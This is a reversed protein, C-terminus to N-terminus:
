TAKAAPTAPARRKKPAAPTGSKPSVRKRRPPPLVTGDEAKQQPPRRPPLPTTRVIPVPKLADFWEPLQQANESFTRHIDHWLAGNQGKAAETGPVFLATARGARGARGTRGVRHVFSEFDDPSPPLDFQIVHDVQTVDLGRAAVDTAVLIECAGARFDALASERQAQSRDGHIDRVERSASALQKGLWTAVHKKQVFCITKEGDVLLSKLLALKDRKDASECKVLSQAVSSAAAGVKGVTVRAFDNRLHKAAVQRVSDAFTASFMLTQREKPLKEMVAALQPAFGMDLMRDAEDLVLYRVERLSVLDRDLFDQLRGPTAVLIEVGHAMRALQQGANAGGYVCVCWNNPSEPARFTLKMCERAIQAALERTPALVLAVPRAPTERRKTEVDAARPKLAGVILPVLFAVTKGSGTQACALVDHGALALPVTHKQIPTATSYAMKDSDILNSRLFDPLGDLSAFDALPAVELVSPGQDRSVEIADYYARFDVADANTANEGFPQVNATRTGNTKTLSWFQKAEALDKKSQKEALGARRQLKADKRATAEDVDLKKGGKKKLAPDKEVLAKARTLRERIDGSDVARLPAPGRSFRPALAYACAVCAVARVLLM